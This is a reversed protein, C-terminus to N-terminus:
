KGGHRIDCATELTTVRTDLSNARNFLIEQNKLLSGYALKLFFAVVTLLFAILGLLWNSVVQYDM